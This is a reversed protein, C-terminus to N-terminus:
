SADSQLLLSTDAPFVIGKRALLSLYLKQTQAAARRATFHQQVRARGRQGMAVRLASNELLRCINLALADIERPPVLSGTVDYEVVEPIGGVATAVVPLGAAMAEVLAMGLGERHSPFAFIDMVHLLEPIDRRFGLFHVTDRLGLSEVRQELEPRLPGDGVLMLRANPIAERVQAMANVLDVLGKEPALRAVTGVVQADLPIGVEQRIAERRRVSSFREPDIGPYIVTIRDPAIGQQRYLHEKTAESLATFHDTFHALVRDLMRKKLPRPHGYGVASAVIVPTRALIAAMRGYASARSYLHIYVIHADHRRILRALKLLTLLDNKLGRKGLCLVRIGLSEVEPLLSGCEALCCVTVQFRSKDLHTVTRLFIEQAGGLDLRLFVYFVNVKRM